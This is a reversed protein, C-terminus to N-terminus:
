DRAQPPVSTTTVVRRLQFNVTKTEAGVIQVPASNTMNPALEWGVPPVVTVTYGGAVLDDVAYYGTASVVDHSEAGRIAITAHTVNNNSTGDTIRGTIVGAGDASPEEPLGLKCAAMAVAIALLIAGRTFTHIRPHTAANVRRNM